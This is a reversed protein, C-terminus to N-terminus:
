WLVKDIIRPVGTTGPTADLALFDSMGKDYNERQWLEYIHQNIGLAALFRAWGWAKRGGGKPSPNAVGNIPQGLWDRWENLKLPPTYTIRDIHNYSPGSHLGDIIPGLNPFLCHFSKSAAVYGGSRTVSGPLALLTYIDRIENALSIQSAPNILTAPSQPLPLSLTAIWDLSSPSIQSLVNQLRVADVLRSHRVNMGFADLLRVIELAAEPMSLWASLSCCNILGNARNEIFRDYPLNYAATRTGIANYAAVNESIMGPISALPTGAAIPMGSLM